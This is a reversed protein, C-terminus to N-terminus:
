QAMKSIGNRKLKFLMKFTSEINLLLTSNLPPIWWDNVTNVWIGMVADALVQM